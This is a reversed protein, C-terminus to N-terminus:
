GRVTRYAGLPIMATVADNASPADAALDFPVVAGHEHDSNLILLGPAPSAAGMDAKVHGLVLLNAGLAARVREQLSAHVPGAGLAGCTGAGM